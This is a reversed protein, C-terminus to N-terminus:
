PAAAGQSKAMANPMWDPTAQVVRQVASPAGCRRGNLTCIAVGESGDLVRAAESSVVSRPPCALEVQQSRRTVVMRSNEGWAPSCWACRRATTNQANMVIVFAMLWPADGCTLGAAAWEIVGREADRHPRDAGLLSHLPRRVSTAPLSEWRRHLDGPLPFGLPREGAEVAPRNLILGEVRRENEAHRVPRSTPLLPKAV